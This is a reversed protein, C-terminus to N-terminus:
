LTKTIVLMSRDVNGNALKVLEDRVFATAGPIDGDMVRDIIGGYVHKLIPANDRRKLVIGMSARKCPRDIETYMNGVYRKKSLLIFPWFTKEYEADHPAMITKRFEASCRKGADISRVLREKACPVECERPFVMFCSDSDGYAVHGGIADTEIFARLKSLMLRGVATTAAALEPTFIPSTPAGLQGYLSNATMKYALQLGDLTSWKFADEECQIQKRVRKRQALLGKLIRPLVGERVSPDVFAVEIACSRLPPDILGGDADKARM